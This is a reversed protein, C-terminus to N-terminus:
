YDDPSLIIKNSVGKVLDLTDYPGWFQIVDGPLPPIHLQKKKAGVGM